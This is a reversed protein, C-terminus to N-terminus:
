LPTFSEHLLKRDHVNRDEREADGRAVLVIGGVIRRVLGGDLVGRRGVDIGRGVRRGVGVRRQVSGAVGDLVGAISDVVGLRSDLVLLRKGLSVVCELFPGDKPAARKKSTTMALLSAVRCDLFM